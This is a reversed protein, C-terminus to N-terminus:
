LVGMQLSSIELLLWTRTDKIATTTMMLVHHRMLRLQQHRNAGNNAADEVIVLHGVSVAPFLLL